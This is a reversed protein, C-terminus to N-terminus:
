LNEKGQLKQIEKFIRQNNNRDIYSFIQDKRQRIDDRETFDHEFYYELSKIVEDEQRCIDGLFTKSIPRLIGNKFFSKVDFHYFIIPKEMYNFDFSVSSYDTIMLKNEKLLQQVTKEGLEIINIRESKLAKFEEIFPQMRYHPYFDLTMNYTELLHILSENTLLSKYRHYYVSERFRDERGLWERWTPMLLISQREERGTLLADFRSLGTVKVENKAYKMKKEVLKKEPVSSVCFLHFPDRYYKKHYEVNKRGLVGHQLFVRKGNVYNDLDLGKLPLINDLDHSGIFVKAISAKRVHNLTGTYLVNGIPEINKIDKSRSNIVYYVDIEPHNERCYKFFHYGTDQATNAREGILWVEKKKNLKRDLKQGYQLYYYAPTTLYFTEIKINGRPTQTLYVRTYHDKNKMFAKALVDDKIYTFDKFGIKKEYIVDQHELQISVDFIEKEIVELDIIRKLPIKIDFHQDQAEKEDEGIPLDLTFEDKSERKRVIISRKMASNANSDAINLYAYGQLSLMGDNLSYKEINQEVMARHMKISLHQKITEYFYIQYIHSDNFEILSNKEVDNADVNDTMHIRLTYEQDDVKLNVYGDWENKVVDNFNIFEQYDVNFQLSYKEVNQLPITIRDLTQRQIFLIEAQNNKFMEQLYLDPVESTINYIWESDTQTIVFEDLTIRALDVSLSLSDKITKYLNFHLTKGTLNYFGEGVVIFEEDIIKIRHEEQSSSDYLYFDWVGQEFNYDEIKLSSTWSEASWTLPVTFYNLTRRKKIRLNVNSLDVDIIETMTGTLTIYNEVVSLEDVIVIKENMEEVQNNFEGAVVIM